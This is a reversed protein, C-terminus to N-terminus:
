WSRATETGRRLCQRRFVDLHKRFRKDTGVAAKGVLESLRGATMRRLLDMQFFRDQGHLYGLGYAADERSQAHITPLGMADRELKISQEVHVTRHEGTLVPLSSRLKWTGIGTTGIALFCAALAGNKAVKRVKRGRGTPKGKKLDQGGDKPHKHTESAPSSM